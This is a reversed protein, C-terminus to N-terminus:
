LALLTAAIQRYTEAIPSDPHRDAFSLGQDLCMAVRPDLAMRGLYRIGHEEAYREVVSRGNGDENGDSGFIDSVVGCCGCVIGAMNEVVGLIPIGTKRCFDIEKRVDQWAVEQPTTVLLAGTIPKLLAVLGLHEDSTGPPTDVLLVDLEEWNVDRLFQKLLGTKKPGRWIVATEESALLFGVSVVAINGHKGTVVPELGSASGHMGEAEVGMMRPQSPGCIDVDLVGIQLAEDEALTRALQSCLTSKGVGGKGSLVLIRKQVRALNEEILALDPDPGKPTSACIQQNPCGACADAKGAEESKTGPCDVCAFVLTIIIVVANQSIYTTTSSSCCSGNEISGKNERFINKHNPLNLPPM